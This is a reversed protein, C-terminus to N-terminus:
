LLYDMGLMEYKAGAAPNYPLMEWPSDAVLKKLESLNEQTDTIGPILPTRLIHPKGSEQLIRLNTLIVENSVGTNERHLKPDALKLDMIVMDLKSLVASFVEPKAFGSTEMCCHYEKLEWLLAQLPDAQALPEGGSLTFGGFGDELISASAKMEEALTQVDVRRGAIELCNEPCVLLCRGYQQCGPHRCKQRCRQCGRCKAQRFMLQPEFSLGEPNHCWRCRLPCGKLFVTTRLGPGDHLAMEKIDFITIKM